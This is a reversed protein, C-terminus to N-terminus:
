SGMGGGIFLLPKDSCYQKPAEAVSLTFGDVLARIIEQLVFGEEMVVLM